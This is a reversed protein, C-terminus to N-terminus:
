GYLVEGEGNEAEFMRLCGASCFRLREDFRMDSLPFAHPVDGPLTHLGCNACKDKAPASLARKGAKKKPANSM